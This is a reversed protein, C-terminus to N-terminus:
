SLFPELTVKCMYSLAPIPYDTGQLEPCNLEDSGDTCDTTNDCRGLMSIVELNTCIYYSPANWVDSLSTIPTRNDESHHKM